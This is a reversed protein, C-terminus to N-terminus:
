PTGLFETILAVEKPTFFKATKRHGVRELAESLQRNRKIWALLHGAATHPSSTQPFYLMALESKGYAKITFDM